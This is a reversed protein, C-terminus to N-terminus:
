TTGRFTVVAHYVGDQGPVFVIVPHPEGTTLIRPQVYPNTGYGSVSVPFAAYGPFANSYYHAPARHVLFPRLIRVPPLPQYTPAVAAGLNANPAVNAGPLAGGAVLAGYGPFPAIVGGPTGGYRAGFLFPVMRLNNANLIALMNTLAPARYSSYPSNTFPPTYTPSYYVGTGPATATTSITSPGYPSDLPGEETRLAKNQTIAEFGQKELEVRQENTVPVIIWAHEAGSSQPSIETPSHSVLQEPQSEVGCASFFSIM